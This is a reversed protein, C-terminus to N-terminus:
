NYDTEVCCVMKLHQYFKQLNADDTTIIAGDAGTDKYSSTPNVKHLLFRAQSKGEDCITLRPVPFRDAVMEKADDVPVKLLQAVNAYEEKLHYGADRWQAILSGHFVVVHFFTDLLLMRDSAVSTSDLLVPFGDPQELSYATLTPQIMILSNTVSERSMLYHAYATEDPSINDARILSSRRLHYAFQPLLTMTAPLQFSDPNDKLFRGFYRCSRILLKDIWRTVDSFEETECKETALRSILVIAAEQDLGSAVEVPDLNDTWRTGFTTVRLMTAGSPHYYTTKFQFFRHGPAHSSVSPNLEFLFGLTTETDCGAMAVEAFQKTGLESVVRCPGLVKHIIVEQSCHLSLSVSGATPLTTAGEFDPDQPYGDPTRPILMCHEPRSFLGQLSDNFVPQEFSEAVVITGGTSKVLSIMEKLGTQRISCAFIDVTHVSEAFKSALLQYYKTAKKYYKLNEERELHDHSRMIEKLDLGVVKGPGETCPGNSLLVVRAPYGKYSLELLSQALALAVGTCRKPREDIPVPFSDKRLSEIIGTLIYDCVNNPQLFANGSPSRCHTSGSLGLWTAVKETSIEKTGSFFYARPVESSTLQWVQASSGYTILGLLANEPISTLVSLLASRISSLEEEPVAIDVVFLYVPPIANNGSQQIIYEVTSANPTLELPINSESIDKYPLQNRSEGCICCRWLKSHVDVQVYPNLCCGCTRCLVPRGAITGLGDIAKLPTYLAGLPLATKALESRSSPWVNFSFRLGNSAEVDQISSM